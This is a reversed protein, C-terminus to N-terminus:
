RIRALTLDQAKSEGPAISVRTASAAFRKVFDPTVEPDVDPPVAVILYDGPLQVTLRYTGGASTSASALRRSSMGSKMWSQSDAPFLVVTGEPETKADPARVSGSISQVKDTFTVVVEPVDTTGLTLVKDVVDVGGAIISSLTLGAPTPYSTLEYRGPAYGMFSFQGNADVVADLSGPPIGVLSVSRINMVVRPPKGDPPAPADIVVRGSIKAGPALTLALNDINATGVALPVEAFLSPTQAPPPGQTVGGGPLAGAAPPDFRVGAMPGAPTVRYAKVIYNGPVVGLLAFRGSADTVGYGVPVDYTPEADGTPILRVGHNAAPGEPTMLVGSVRVGTVLPLTIDVGSRDDGSGLTIVTAEAATRASPYYTTPTTLVTGNPGPLVRPESLTNVIWGGINLGRGSVQVAGTARFQSTISAATGSTVAARYEDASVVSMTQTTSRVTLVYSGPLLGGLRYHGRDDTAEVTGGTLTLEYRGANLVRKMAWVPVGIAPEGRDDRVSGSITSLKWMLVRVDTIRQGDTLTFARGFGNPRRRGTTGPAFGELTSSIHFSGAPIERFVFRGDANAIAVARRAAPSVSVGPLPPPPAGTALLVTAGGIPKGTVGDVVQGAVVGTAAQQQPPNPTPIQVSFVLLAAPFVRISIPM